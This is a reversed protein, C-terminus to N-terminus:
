IAGRNIKERLDNLRAAVINGTVPNGSVDHTLQAGMQMLGHFLADAQHLSHPDPVGILSLCQQYPNM